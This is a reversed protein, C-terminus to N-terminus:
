KSYKEGGQYTIIGDKDTCYYTGDADKANTKSKQIKGTTNVLYVDGKYEAPELKLDTGAKLKRGKIVISDKNIGNFGAGKMNTGGGTRFEFSYKEGDLTITASGTKLAGEKPSDAFYYVECDDDFGPLDSESEIEEASAIEKGDFTVKYLGHLMEGKEDFGYTQGNITKFQGKVLDGDGKAYFWYAEDDAYAESDVDESPVVKFWGKAQWCQEPNNYYLNSPTASSPTAVNYWKFEAAGNEDFRYKYGNITKKTDVVKKGNSGFYFWHTGDFDSDEVESNEAELQRWQGTAVAGDGEEGAYYMGSIWADDDTLREGDEGIWGSVLKGYENFIYKKTEGKATTISKFQVKGSDSAKAAKGTSQFYYWIMDEEGDDPDENDLYRWENTVRAGDGNVYYYNDDDEILADRLMAGSEDLYFWHSGSKKWTDAARENSNIYYYWEGGDQRWEAAGFATMAAGLTM